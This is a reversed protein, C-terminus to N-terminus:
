RGGKTTPTHNGGDHDRSNKIKSLKKLVDSARRSQCRIEDLEKKLKSVDGTRDSVKSLLESRVDQRRQDYMSKKNIYRSFSLKKSLKTHIDMSKGIVELRSKFSEIRSDYLIDVTGPSSNIFDYIKDVKKM